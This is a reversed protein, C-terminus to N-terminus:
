DLRPSAVLKGGGSGHSAMELHGKRLPGAGKYEYELLNSWWLRVRQQFPHLRCKDTHGFDREQSCNAPM